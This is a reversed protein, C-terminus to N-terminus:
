RTMQTPLWSVFPPWLLVVVFVVAMLALYPVVAGAVQNFTIQPPAVGKM